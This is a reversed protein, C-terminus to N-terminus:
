NQNSQNEPILDIARLKELIIEELSYVIIQQEISEGYEHILKRSVGPLLLIEDRSIEIMIKTLPERQWPYQARIEFAEQGAPHPENEVYREVTLRLPAFERIQGEAERTVDTIASLLEKSHTLDSTASFDLDESFRYDGFYCKKLATGGKFVLSASLLPHQFISKLVWSLLYDQQVADLRLGTQRAVDELRKRLPRIQELESTRM